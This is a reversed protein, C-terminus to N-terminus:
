FLIRAKTGLELEMIVLLTDKVLQTKSRYRVNVCLAPSLTLYASPTVVAPVALMETKEARSM